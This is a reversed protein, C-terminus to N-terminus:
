LELTAIAIGESCFVRREISNSSISGINGAINHGGELASGDERAFFNKFLAM